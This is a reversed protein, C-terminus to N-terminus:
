PTQKLPDYLKIGDINKFDKSNHTWLTLDNVMATAAIIADPLKLNVSKRLEIVKDTVIKDFVYNKMHKFLEKFYTEDESSVSAYGLVEAIIINCTDLTSERLKALDSESLLHGPLYLVINTDLLIM